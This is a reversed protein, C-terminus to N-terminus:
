RRCKMMDKGLRDVRRICQIRLRCAAALHGAPEVGHAVADGFFHAAVLRDEIETLARAFTASGKCVCLVKPLFEARLTHDIRRNVPAATPADAVPARM